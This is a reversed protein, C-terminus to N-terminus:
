QRNILPSADAAANLAKWAGEVNLRSDIVEDTWLRYQEQIQYGIIKYGEVTDWGYSKALKLNRTNRPIYCMDLFLGKDERSEMQGRSLFECVIAVGLKESDTVAEFDPVTGVAYYPSVLSAVQAVSKVHIITPGKDGYATADECLAKVEDDDRNVIYITPCQLHAFLAYVAARCAGGAGIVLAPKGVGKVTKTRLCELIGIWDTNSGCLLPPSNPISSKKLYVNNCSGLIQVRADIEDLYPIITKKYPMTVVAGAFSPLRFTSILYEITPCELLKYTWPLNLSAACVQHIAPSISHAIGIGAICYWKQEAQLTKDVELTAVPKNLISPSITNPMITTM